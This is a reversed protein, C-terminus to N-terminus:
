LCCHRRCCRGKCRRCCCWARCRCGGLPKLWQTLVLSSSNPQAGGPRHPPKRRSPRPRRGPPTASPSATKRAGLVRSEQKPTESVGAGKHTSVAANQRPAFGQDAGPEGSGVPTGGPTGRFTAAFIAAPCPPPRPKLRLPTPPAPSSPGSKSALTPRSGRTAPLSPSPTWRTRGLTLTVGHGQPWTTGIKLVSHLESKAM